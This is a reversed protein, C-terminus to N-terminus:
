PAHPSHLILELRTKDKGRASGTHAAAATNVFKRLHYFFFFIIHCYYQYHSFIFFAFLFLLVASCTVGLLRNVERRSIVEQLNTGGQHSIEGTGARSRSTTRSSVGTISLPPHQSRTSAFTYRLQRQRCLGSIGDCLVDCGGCMVGCM